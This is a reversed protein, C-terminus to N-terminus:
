PERGPALGCQSLLAEVAAVHDRQAAKAADLLADRQRQWQRYTEPIANGSASLAGALDAEIQRVAGLLALQHRNADSAQRQLGTIFFQSVVNQFYRAENIPQRNLCLPRGEVRQRIMATSRRLGDLTTQQFALLEGGRGHRLQGLSELLADGSHQWEGRLWAAQWRQWQRLAQVAPDAAQPPYDRQRQPPQWIQRFEKGALLAMFLRAPLDRQKSAQADILAQALESDNDAKLEEICAPAENLFRLDFILHSSADGHRGLISNREALTERLKCRRLRLFELLNIDSQSFTLALERTRPFHPYPLPAPDPIAVDLVRSLRTLYDEWASNASSTSDCASLAILLALAALRPPASLFARM